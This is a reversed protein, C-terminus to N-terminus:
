KRHSFIDDASERFIDCQSMKVESREARDGEFGKLNQASLKKPIGWFPIGLFHDARLSKFGRDGSDSDTANDLQAM